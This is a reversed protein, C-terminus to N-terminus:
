AARVVSQALTQRVQRMAQDFPMEDAEAFLHGSKVLAALQEPSAVLKRVGRRNVLLLRSTLPSIWAVKVSGEVGQEDFLRMWDGPRLAHMRQAVEPDFELTASGGVVQLLRTDDSDDALQPMGPQAHLERPADPFALTRALGAMWESAVQDDLGSSSLCEVLGAHLALVRGAVSSGAGRAAAEDVAVLEDALALVKAHHESAQGERLLVQVLHHQWHRELFQAITPTLTRGSMRQALAAAAQLRAQLLRERGHVTEASRREVVEARRRQQQLLDQLENATLEFIALDENYEAVVRAVLANARQLLERDQPSAGDNSECSLALVDLLRRAPHDPRVFLNEDTLAVKVYSMVLRAFMHRSEQVLAHSKLLSEFLLGTLDIADEQQQDLRTSDPDLGLRRAGELLEERISENLGCKGALAAEFQRVNDRQLLSAVSVLEQVRLERREALRREPAHESPVTQDALMGERWQHLMDRLRQHRVRAEASTRFVDAGAPAPAAEPTEIPAPPVVPVFGGDAAQAPATGERRADAHYGNAALQTNLRGYLEGLVKALEQEYQRFLLPQLTESIDADRFTQLFAGALRTAGIPNANAPAGLADALAEFRLDLMELPRQYRRGISEALRQGALHFELESERVLGLPAGSKGFYGGGRFDDFSRAILERYRMVFGASRQRLALVTMLDKRQAIGSGSGSGSGIRLSDHLQDEIPRYLGGPVAGLQEVAIRKLEDLLRAPDSAAVTALGTPHTSM